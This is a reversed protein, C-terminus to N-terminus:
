LKETLEGKNKMKYLLVFFLVAAAVGILAIIGPQTSNLPAQSPTANQAFTCPLISIGVLFTLALTLWATQKM